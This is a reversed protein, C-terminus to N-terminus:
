LPPLSEETMKLEPGTLDVERDHWKFAQVGSVSFLGATHAIFQM